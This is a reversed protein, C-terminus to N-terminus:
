AVPNESRFRNLDTAKHSAAQRPHTARKAPTPLSRFDLKTSLMRKKPCNRVNLCRLERPTGIHITHGPHASADGMALLAREVADFHTKLM